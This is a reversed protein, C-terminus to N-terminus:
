VHPFKPAFEPSVLKSHAPPPNLNFEVIWNNAYWFFGPFLYSFGLMPWLVGPKLARVIFFTITFLVQMTALIGLALMLSGERSTSGNPQWNADFHVAMRMPLREWVRWYNLATIPLPLWMLLVALKHWRRNM